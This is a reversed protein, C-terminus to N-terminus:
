ACASARPLSLTVCYLSSGRRGADFSFESGYIRQLRERTNRLGVRTSDPANADQEDVSNQIEVLLRSDDVDVRLEIRTPDTTRATGHVVANEILPQLLLPPVDCGKAAVSEHIAFQLRSGYRIQQLRLYSAVFQLEWALPVREQRSAEIVYRLLQSLEALASTALDDQRTRVLGSITNLANFLFHPELQARLLELEAQALRTKLDASEREHRRTREHLFLAYCGTTLLIYLFIDWLVSTGATRKLREGITGVDGPQVAVYAIADSTAYVPLLAVGLLVFRWAVERGRLGAAAARDMAGFVVASMLIWVSDALLRELLLLGFRSDRGTRVADLHLATSETLALLTCGAVTAIWFRPSRLTSM